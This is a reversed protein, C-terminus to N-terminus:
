MCIRDGANQFRPGPSRDVDVVREKRRETAGARVVLGMFPADLQNADGGVVDGGVEVLPRDDVLVHDPHAMAVPDVVQAALAAVELDGHEGSGHPGVDLM